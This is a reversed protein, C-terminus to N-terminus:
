IKPTPPKTVDDLPAQSAGREIQRGGLRELSDKMIRTDRSIPAPMSQCFKAVELALKHDAEDSSASLEGVGRQYAELVQRRAAVIDPDKKSSKEGAEISETIEKVRRQEVQPLQRRKKIQYVATREAKHVIGRAKRPTANAEIGQAHLKEAFVQRYRFLDEKNPHFRRGDLDRRAVTLHVHPHDRDTHLGMVWRRGEMEDEAFARAAAHLRDPDTGEPMSLIFSLSTAGKRRADDQLEWAHWEGALANMEALTTMTHGESTLLALEKDDGWGIRAIYSFNAAVHSRGNQRGTVKVMAEPAKAITRALAAKANASRSQHSGNGFISWVAAAPMAAAGMTARAYKKGARNANPDARGRRAKPGLAFELLDVAEPSFAMESM